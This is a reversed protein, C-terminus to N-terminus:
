TYPSWAAFVPSLRQYAAEAEAESWENYCTPSALFAQPSGPGCPLGQDIGNVTDNVQEKTREVLTAIEDPPSPLEALARNFNM